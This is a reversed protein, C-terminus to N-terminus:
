QRQLETVGTGKGRRDGTGTYWPVQTGGGARLAWPPPIRRHLLLGILPQGTLEGFRHMIWLVEGNADWEGEQSHFYGSHDQRAPFLDLVREARETLGACLLGHVIFAADRFWFRRYTYPGPFAEGPSHLILTSLATEYLFRIHDDPIELHCSKDLEEQWANPHLMAQQETKLPITVEIQRNKGGEIRYLAAATAMGVECSIRDKEGQDPLHLAVDGGHYDSACHREPTTSLRMCPEGNVWWHNRDLRVEHIFSVGEPNCPRLAIALWGPQDSHAEVQLLCYPQGHDLKVTALTTLKMGTVQTETVVEPGQDFSIHQLSNLCQSPLLRNGDDGILWCDLSWGDYLPTLLGRPDVIPYQDLDPWGVATWNRHSLNVHTISFARPIFSEDNHDFQRVIWYPWVWDLNHQIARSNILGRAHFVMGARLLEIPEGVESPQAFRRLRALLAVPDLFGQSRAIHRVIFHWPFWKFGM